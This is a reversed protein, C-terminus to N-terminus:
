QYIGIAQMNLDNCMCSANALVISLNSIYDYLQYFELSKIDGCETVNFWIQITEYKRIITM